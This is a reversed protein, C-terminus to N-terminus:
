AHYYHGGFTTFYMRTAASATQDVEETWLSSGASNGTPGASTTAVQVDNIFMTVNGSGDSYVSWDFPVGGTIGLSNLSTNTDVSTLTTGNHALLFFNSALGGVKQWGIGKQALAGAGTASKGVTIRSTNHDDGRFTNDYLSRGSMWFPKSFNILALASGKAYFQAVGGNTQPRYYSFGAVSVNPGICVRTLSTTFSGAGTGSTTVLVNNNNQAIQVYGPSMVVDMLRMPSVALTSSSPEVVELRTALEVKGAVTTSAAPVEQQVFATTAVATTNNGATQTVATTGTPLSPTGTFTPSNLAARTTDTPHVHDQRAYRLSTGAAATGNVVPNATGAQGVVYATTAIQTTNTDASATTSLPTGTLSPSALPAAGSVDAVALTVAGTRGAVSTVPATTLYGAPNSALPYYLGNAATTTSYDAATATAMTGLGLNTRATATNALGSLNDAKLLFGSPGPYAVTQTSADPFRVGQGSSFLKLGDTADLKFTKEPTGKRGEIEFSALSLFNYGSLMSGILISGDSNPSSSTGDLTFNGKLEGNTKLAYTTSATATTLYPTLASSTIYGAPNTQLYYTAAADASTLLGLASYTKNKWLSTSSEYALLNNNALTGIAVDHLEELEYGNQVAVEIAGETANSRVVIGVYVLHTPALTKTATYTGATTGSLYLQAGVSFASTDINKLQGRITVDGNSNNPIDATVLGITQASTSDSTALAKALLPKNGAGGSIYVVTGKTLTSGTENRAPM